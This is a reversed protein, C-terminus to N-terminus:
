GSVPATVMDLILGAVDDCVSTSTKLTSLVQAAHRPCLGDWANSTKHCRDALLCRGHAFIGERAMYLVTRSAWFQSRCELMLGRDEIAVRLLSAWGKREAERLSDHSVPCGRQIAWLAMKRFGFAVAMSLTDEDWPCPCPHRRLWSLAHLNGGMAAASCTTESLPYGNHSAWQLIKHHGTYASLDCMDIYRPCGHTHAWVLVKLHGRETAAKEVESNWPCGRSRLWQLTLLHGNEAAAVCVSAGWSCARNRAWQLGRINGNAALAECVETGMPPPSMLAHSPSLAAASSICSGM